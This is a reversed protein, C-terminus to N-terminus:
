EIMGEVEDLETEDPLPGWSAPVVAPDLGRSPEDERDEDRWSPEKKRGPKGREPPVHPEDPETTVEVAEITAERQTQLTTAALRAVADALRPPIENSAAFHELEEPTMLDLLREPSETVAPKPPQVGALEILRLNADLKVRENAATKSMGLVRKVAGVVNAKVLAMAGFEGRSLQDFFNRQLRTLAAQFAPRKIRGQVQSLSIGVAKAMERQSLRAAWSELLAFDMADLQPPPEGDLCVVAGTEEEQALDVRTEM